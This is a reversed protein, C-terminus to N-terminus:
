GHKVNLQTCNVVLLRLFFNTRNEIVMMNYIESVNFLRKEKTGYFGFKPLEGASPRDWQRKRTEYKAIETKTLQPNRFKGLHKLLFGISSFTPRKTLSKIRKPNKKKQRRELDSLILKEHSQEAVILSQKPSPHEVDKNKFKFGTDQNEPPKDTNIVQDSDSNQCSRICPSSVFKKNRPKDKRTPAKRKEDVPLLPHEVYEHKFDGKQIAPPQDEIQSHQVVFNECVSCLNPDCTGTTLFTPGEAPDKEKELLRDDQTIVTGKDDKEEKLILLENNQDTAILFPTPAIHKQDKNKIEFNDKPKDNGVLRSQETDSSKCVKCACIEIFPSAPKKMKEKPLITEDKVILLEYNQDAAILSHNQSPDEIHSKLKTPVKDPDVMQPQYLDSNQCTCGNSVVKEKAVLPKDKRQKPTVPPHQTPLPQKSDKRKFDDKQKAPPSDNDVLQSQQALSKECLECVHPACMGASSSKPGKAPSKVREAKREKQIILKGKTDKEEKMILLENNQDTAILSQKPTTHKLDKNKFHDEAKDNGVLQSQEINSCQCEGICACPKLTSVIPKKKSNKNRKSEEGKQKVVKDKPPIAEEKVIFMENNQDTAVLSQIQSPHEVNKNKLKSDGKRKNGINTLQPQELDAKEKAMKHEDGQDVPQQDLSSHEKTKFDYVQKAPPKDNDILQSQGVCANQCGDCANTDYMSTSFFTPEKVLSLIEQITAQTERQIVVKDNAPRKDKVTLVEQNRNKDAPTPSQKINENQYKNIVNSSEPETSSKTTSPELNENQFVHKYASPVCIRQIFRVSGGNLKCEYSNEYINIGSTFCNQTADCDTAVNSSPLTASKIDEYPAPAACQNGSAKSKNSPM